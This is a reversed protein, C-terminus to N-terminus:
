FGATSTFTVNFKGNTVTKNGPTANAGSPVLVFNFTGSTTTATLTDLKITGSGKFADAVWGGAGGVTGVVLSANNGSQAGSAPIGYTGTANAVVAFAITTNTSDTAAVSVINGARTAIIGLAATFSKGDVTATFTGNLTSGSPSMGNKSGGCATAVLVAVCPLILTSRM